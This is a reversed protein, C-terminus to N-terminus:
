DPYIETTQWGRGDGVAELAVKVEVVGKGLHLGADGHTHLEM